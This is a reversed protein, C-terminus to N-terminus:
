RPRRRRRIEAVTARHRAMKGFIATRSQLLYTFTAYQLTGHWQLLTHSSTKIYGNQITYFEGVLGLIVIPNYIGQSRSSVTNQLALFDQAM